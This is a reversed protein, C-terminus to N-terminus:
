PDAKKARAAAKREADKARRAEIEARSPNFLLFDHIEWWVSGNRGPVRRWLGADELEAVVKGPQTLGPRALAWLQPETVVGDSELRAALVMGGVHLAFASLSLGRIKHHDYFADDIKLWTM